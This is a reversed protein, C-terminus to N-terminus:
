ESARLPVLAPSDSARTAEADISTVLHVVTFEHLLFVGARTTYQPIGEPLRARPEPRGDAAVPWTWRRVNGLTNTLVGAIWRRSPLAGGLHLTAERDGWLKIARTSPSDEILDCTPCIAIRRASVRPIRFAVTFVKVIEACTPCRRDGSAGSKWHAATVWEDSFKEGREMRMLHQVVDRRLTDDDHIKEDRWLAHEYAHLADRLASARPRRDPAGYRAGWGCIWQL